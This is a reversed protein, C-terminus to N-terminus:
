FMYRVMLQVIRPDRTNNMAGFGGLQNPNFNTVTGNIGNFNITRNFDSFQTKNLTNFTDVRFQLQHKEVIRFAKQMSLNWNNIAPLYLYRPNTEVGISGVMPTAFAAPNMQAFINARNAGTFPNALLRVRAGETFSGTLNQNAVGPISFGVGQPAGSIFSYIGSLQWGGFVANAFRNDKSKMINPLDQVFNINLNHRRDFDLPGYNAFRNRNDIRQFDGDGQATGLAKSWTYNMDLLTRGVRRSVTVQMSNYNSSVTGEYININGFGRYPRFFDANLGARQEAPVNFWAGYPMANINRNNQLHRGLSGVYAVDLVTQYWLRRQIGFNFNYTTPVVGTPDAMVLGPPGLLLNQPSIQSAFGFNLTPQLVTPPNTLLDFVRNGQFRDYFIGGGGRVITSQDGILDLAFGFRPGWHIGRDRMMYKNAGNQNPQIIGNTISGTGPVLRGIFVSALTQGTVPDIAGTVSGTASLQPYYLRSAQSANFASPLFSSTILGADYQPQIWAMRMGFDLTLRRAVKWTDQAFWELNHYRYQGNAYARAQTFSNYVGLMANSFGFNTDNPNAPNDGFNYNGNANAFSTQNKRSFQWYGGVKIVHTGSVKTFIGTNDLTDNFNVFPANGTGFGSTNSIRTGNFTVQPIFDRQVAGPYILPLNIGTKARTLADANAANPEILIDNRGWGVTYELTATPSIVRTLGGAYSKGPRGDDILYAGVTSGLVFSGYPSTFINHNNIWHGFIRTNDNLNYDVRLHDERRPRRTSVQTEYNYNRFVRQDQNPQPYLNLLARGPAFFRSSPIMAGPFPSGSEPDRIAGLALGQNNLSQSFDGQRELATPVTIRRFGEPQLQRQFEQSWFFFLKDRDKNFTNPIFVPGGITYGPNQYRYLQRPLGQNNRFWTNANMSDHRRYYYGSGHFDRAGSKTQVIIQAGASRGYEAQYTGTLIRFEAVTDLSVTSLQDGNNGTDVNSIGNLLLQNQNYRSGNASIAGLGSTGAVTFNGNNVVGPTLGALALYSRGNVAINEMQAGSIQNSREGSETKLIEAQATVEVVEALQGLELSLEGLAVRENVQVVLNRLELTKFGTLKITLTYNGPPIAPFFFRGETGTTVTLGIDRGTSTLKVEANPVASKQADFVSGSISGNTQQAFAAGCMLFAAALLVSLKQGGMQIM